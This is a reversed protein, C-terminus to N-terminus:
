ETDRRISEPRCRHKSGNCTPPVSRNRPSDDIGFRNLFVM